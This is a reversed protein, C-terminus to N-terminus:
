LLSWIYCRLDGHGEPYPCVTRGTIVIQKDDMGKMEFGTLKWFFSSFQIRGTLQGIFYSLIPDIQYILSPACTMKVWTYEKWNKVKLFMGKYIKILTNIISYVLGFSVM